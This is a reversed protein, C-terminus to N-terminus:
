SLGRIFPVGTQPLWTSGDIFNEVTFLKAEESKLIHFGPWKVRKTVNAGPGTNAWEAFYPYANHPPDDPDTSAEMKRWGEPKINDDMFSQMIVTRSYDGWPRGLFTESNLNPSRAKLDADRSINCFQLVFGTNDSTKNKGDATLVTTTANRALIQCKQFVATGYGFIFDVTGTIVCERYFQRGRNVFLTDQNGRIACRYLVAQDSIINLAVAQKSEHPASNEITLNIAVFYPAQIIVTSSNGTSYMGAHSHNGTITTVDMGAGVLVINPKEILLYERYVGKKIHIVYPTSSNVPAQAVAATINKLNGSGDLAVMVNSKTYDYVTPSKVPGQAPGQAFVDTVDKFNRSGDLAVVDNANTYDPITAFNTVRIPHVRVLLLSIAVLWLQYSLSIM